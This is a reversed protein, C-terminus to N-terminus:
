QNIFWKAFLISGTKRYAIEEMVDDVYSEPWITLFENGIDVNDYLGNTDSVPTEAAYSKILEKGEDTTCVSCFVDILLQYNGPQGYMMYMDIALPHNWEVYYQLYLEIDVGDKNYRLLYRAESKDEYLYEHEAPDYTFGFENILMDRMEDAKMWEENHQGDIDSEQSTTQSEEPKESQGAENGSVEGDVIEEQEEQINETSKGDEDKNNNHIVLAAIGGGVLAVAAVGVAIKVKLAALGTKTVTGVGSVVGSGTTSAQTMAVNGTTSTVNAVATSVGVTANQILTSIIQPVLNPVDLGGAEAALLSALFPVTAFSYLKDDTAKEYALVGEKIKGRAVSLRYKVTGPPCEMIDAIEDITLGNFYYLIVTEYQIDSLQERMINMVIKRKEKKNIYEEPLFNENDELKLSSLDEDEMPIATDKMLFRKCKNVAIQNIWAQFKEKEKLQPLHNYATIYADQMVDKADEENNLFSICIFYVTKSTEEYLRTFAEQNGQEVLLILEKLELNNM